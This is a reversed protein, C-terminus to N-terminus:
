TFFILDMEHIVHILYISTCPIHSACIDCAVLGMIQTDYYVSPLCYTLPSPCTRICLCLILCSFPAFTTVQHRPPHPSNAGVLSLGREIEREIYIIHIHPPAYPTKHHSHKFTDTPGCIDQICLVCTLPLKPSIPAPHVGVWKPEFTAVGGKEKRQMM